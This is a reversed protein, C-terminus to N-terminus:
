KKDKQLKKWKKLAQEKHYKNAEDLHCIGNLHSLEHQFVRATIGDFTKTVTEGNPEEYRVKIRRPRKVKVFLESYSLCGEELVIVEDSKDVIRPNFCVIIKESMMAFARVPIGIQPAALGLGQNLILTEALDRSLQIPDTSPEAFDFKLTGTTLIRNLSCCSERV